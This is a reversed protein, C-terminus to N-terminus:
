SITNILDVTILSFSFLIERTGRIFSVVSDVAAGAETEDLFGLERSRTRASSDNYIIFKDIDERYVITIYHAASTHAYALISVKSAKIVEDIDMTIQPFLTHNVSYGLNRLYFEIANPYTGFVGGFVTGGSEEFNRVIEAPHIPNDLILLANYVAVWGCGNYWGENMGERSGMRIENAPSRHQHDIFSKLDFNIKINHEYNSLPNNTDDPPEPDEQTDDTAPQEPNAAEALKMESYDIRAKTLVISTQDDLETYLELANNFYKIAQAYKENEYFLNGQYYYNMAETRKAEIILEHVKKIGEDALSIGGNFSLASAVLKAEDYMLIAADYDTEGTLVEAEGIITYFAIFIESISAINHAGEEVHRIANELHNEREIRQNRLHNLLLFIGAAIAILLFAFGVVIIIKNRRHQM